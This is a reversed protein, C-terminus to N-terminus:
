KDHPPVAVTSRILPHNHRGLYKCPRLMYPRMCYDCLGNRRAQDRRMLENKLEDDSYDELDKPYSM